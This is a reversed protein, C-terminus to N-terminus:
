PIGFGADFLLSHMSPKSKLYASMSLLAHSDSMLLATGALSRM